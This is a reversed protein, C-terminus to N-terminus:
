IIKCTLDDNVVIKKHTKDIDYEIFSDLITIRDKEFLMNRHKLITFVDVMSLTELKLESVEECYLLYSVERLIKPINNFAYIYFGYLEFFGSKEVPEQFSKFVRANVDKFFKSDM